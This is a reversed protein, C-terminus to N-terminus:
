SVIERLMGGAAANPCVLSPLLQAFLDEDIAPAGLSGERWSLYQLFELVRRRHGAARHARGLGGPLKKFRLLLGYDFSSVVSSATARTHGADTRPIECGLPKLLAFAPLLFL